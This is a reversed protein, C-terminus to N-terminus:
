FIFAIPIIGARNLADRNGFLGIANIRPMGM